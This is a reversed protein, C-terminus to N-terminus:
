VEYASLKKKMCISFEMGAYPEYNATIVYGLRQYLRIAEHQLTGTELVASSYGLTAAWKELDRIIASAIGKGRQSADVFMRKIEISEEDFKKFCGCGVAIDNYYAIVVTDIFDIQNHEDYELQLLGYRNHLDQDLLTILSRFAPDDSNTRKLITTM